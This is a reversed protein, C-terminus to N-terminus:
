PVNRPGRRVCIKERPLKKWVTSELVMEMHIIELDTNEAGTGQAGTGNDAAM